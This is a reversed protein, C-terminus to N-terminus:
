RLAHFDPMGWLANFDAVNETADAIQMAIRDM